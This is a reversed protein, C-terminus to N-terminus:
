KLDFRFGSVQVGSGWFGFESGSSPVSTLDPIPKPKAQLKLFGLSLALHKLINELPTDLTESAPCPESLQSDKLPATTPARTRAGSVRARSLGLAEAGLDPFM